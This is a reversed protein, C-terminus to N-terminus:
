KEIEKRARTTQTHVFDILPGDYAFWETNGIRLGAFHQHLEREQQAGGALLLVINDERLALTRIRKKVCTTTGIKIRNGNRIFYVLPDHKHPPIEWRPTEDTATHPKDATEASEDVLQYGLSATIADLRQRRLEKERAAFQAAAQQSERAIIDDIVAQDEAPLLRTRMWSHWVIFAMPAFMGLVIWLGIYHKSEAASAFAFALVMLHSIAGMKRLFRRMMPHYFHQQEQWLCIAWLILGCAVTTWACIAFFKDKDFMPRWVDSDFTMLLYMAAVGAQCAWVFIGLARDIFTPVNAPPRAASM